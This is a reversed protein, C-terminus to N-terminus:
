YSLDSLRILSRGLKRDSVQAKRRGAPPAPPRSRPGPRAPSSTARWSSCGASSPASRTRGRGPPAATRGCWWALSSPASPGTSPPLSDLSLVGPTWGDTGGEGGGGDGQGGSGTQLCRDLVTGFKWQSLSVLYKEPHLRQKSTTWDPQLERLPPPRPRGDVVSASTHITECKWLEEDGRSQKRGQPWEERRRGPDGARHPRWTLRLPGLERVNLSKEEHQSTPPLPRNHPRLM